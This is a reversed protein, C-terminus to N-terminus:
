LKPAAHVFHLAMPTARGRLTALIESGHPFGHGAVVFVESSIAATANHDRANQQLRRPLSVTEGPATFAVHGGFGIAGIIARGCQLGIGYGLGWRDGPRIAAHAAPRWRVHRRRYLAWVGLLAHTLLLLFPVATGVNGQWILQQVPQLQDAAAVSINLVVHNLM